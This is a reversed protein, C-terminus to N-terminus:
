FTMFGFVEIGRGAEDKFLRGNPKKQTYLAIQNRRERLPTHHFIVVSKEGKERLKKDTRMHSTSHNTRKKKLV